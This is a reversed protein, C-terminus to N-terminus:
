DETLDKEQVVSLSVNWYKKKFEKFEQKQKPEWVSMTYVTNKVKIAGSFVPHSVNKNKISEKPFEFM